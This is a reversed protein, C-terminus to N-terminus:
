ASSPMRSQRKDRPSPSTYLLCFDVQDVHVRHRHDPPFGQTRPLKSNAVVVLLREPDRAVRRIEEVLAGAHLSLSMWGEADPPTAATVLVRAPRKEAFLQFRRFDGPIFSVDHGAARLAREVPGYFAALLKVGPKTFVEFFDGLMGGFVTLDSWDDRKSLAELFATPQGPGFALSLTDVPRLLAAAESPTCTKM